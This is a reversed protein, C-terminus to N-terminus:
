KCRTPKGSISVGFKVLPNSCSACCICCKRMACVKMSTRYKWSFLFINSRTLRPVFICHKKPPYAFTCFFVRVQIYLAQCNTNEELADLVADLVLSPTDLDSCYKKMKLVVMDSDNDRLKELLQQVRPATLHSKSPQRVSRRVWGSSAATTDSGLISQIEAATLFRPAPVKKQPAEMDCHAVAMPPAKPKTPSKSLSLSPKRPPSSIPAFSFVTTSRNRRALKVKESISMPIPDDQVWPGASSTGVSSSAREVAAKVNRRHVVRPPAGLRQVAWQVLEEEDTDSDADCRPIGAAAVWDMENTSEAKVSHLADKPADVGTCATELIRYREKRHTDLSPADAPMAAPKDVFSDEQPNAHDNPPRTAPTRPDSRDGGSHSASSSSDGLEAIDWRQSTREPPRPKTGRAMHHPSLGM